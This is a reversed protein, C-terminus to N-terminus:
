ALKELATSIQTAELKMTKEIEFLDSFIYNILKSNFPELLSSCFPSKTLFFETTGAKHAVVIKNVVLLKKYKENEQEVFKFERDDADFAVCISYKALSEWHHHLSDSAGIDVLVPPQQQLSKQAEINKM